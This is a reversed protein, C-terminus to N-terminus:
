QKLWLAVAEWAVFFAILTFWCLSTPPQLVEAILQFVDYLKRLASPFQAPFYGEWPRCQWSRRMGFIVKHIWQSLPYNRSMNVNMTLHLGRTTMMRKLAAFSSTLQFPCVWCLSSPTSPEVLVLRHGLLGNEMDVNFGFTLPSNHYYLLMNLNHLM